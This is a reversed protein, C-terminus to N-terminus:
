LKIGKPDDIGRSAQELNNRVIELENILDVTENLMARMKLAFAEQKKIDGLTGTSHPDKLVQLKQDLVQGEVKLRVTYWGPAVRPGRQGAMLDLDWTVM